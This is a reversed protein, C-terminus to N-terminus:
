ALQQPWQVDLPAMRVKTRIGGRGRNQPMRDLMPLSQGANLSEVQHSHRPGGHFGYKIPRSQEFQM